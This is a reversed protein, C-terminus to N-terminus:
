QSHEKAMSALTLTGSVTKMTVRADGGGQSFRLNENSVYESREPQHDSIRNRIDGGPGTDLQFRASAGKPLKLRADGSVTELSLRASGGLTDMEARIDGSVSTAELSHMRNLQLEIDGSVSEVELSGGSRSLHVAGSVTELEIEGELAIATIDGSVSDLEVEGAIRNIALDGSVSELELGRNLDDVSFDTSVGSADVEIADPLTVTLKSGDDNGNWNKPMTVEAVLTDGEREFVWDRALEDLEGWIHIESHDGGTLTVEGRPVILTLKSIGGADMRSDIDEGAWLPLSASMLGATLIMKKM